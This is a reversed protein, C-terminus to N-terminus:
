TLILVKGAFASLFKLPYYRCPPDANRSGQDRWNPHDLFNHSRFPAKEGFKGRKSWTKYRTVFVENKVQSLDESRINKEHENSDEKWSEKMKNKRCLVQRINLRYYIVTIRADIWHRVRKTEQLYIEVCNHFAM